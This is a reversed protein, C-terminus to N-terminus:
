RISCYIVKGDGEFWEVNADLKLKELDCALLSVALSENFPGFDHHVTKAASLIANRGDENRYKLVARVPEDDRPAGDPTAASINAPSQHLIKKVPIDLISPPQSPM